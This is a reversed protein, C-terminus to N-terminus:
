APDDFLRDPDILGGTKWTTGEASDRIEIGASQLHDRLRDSRAFDRASRAADRAAVLECIRAHSRADIEIQGDLGLFALGAALGDADGDKHL